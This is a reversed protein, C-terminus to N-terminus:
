DEPWTITFDSRAALLVSAMSRGLGAEPVLGCRVVGNPVRPRKETSFLNFKRNINRTTHSLRPSDWGLSVGLEGRRALQHSISSRRDPDRHHHHGPQAQRTQGRHPPGCVLLRQRVVQAGAQRALEVVAPGAVLRGLIPGIRRLLTRVVREAPSELRHTSLEPF